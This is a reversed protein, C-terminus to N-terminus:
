RGHGMGLACVFGKGEPIVGHVHPLKAKIFAEVMKEGAEAFNNVITAM